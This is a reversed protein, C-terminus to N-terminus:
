ATLHLDVKHLLFDVINLHEIGNHGMDIRDLSLVYKPSADTIKDFAGFERKITSESALLYAVQIFCKRGNKVAVFDIEGKHTKGTFVTYGQILLENHIINELFFTDEYNITNTNLTRLGTDTAYFKNNTDLANKGVINYKKCSHLLYAKRLKDLYNYITRTSVIKKNKSFYFSAISEASFEKGANSMIYLSIDKFMKRDMKSSKKVIDRDVINSYLNGLFRMISAEDRFSFRLPFGGWKIYDAIFEDPNCAFNNLSLFDVAEKFSFPFIEFEITRGTLLTALEGSLMTSDSGTVFVSCNFKTRISALLKEFGSLHQIEDIFIYYKGSDAIRSEIEHHMDKADSIFAYDIDELNISVIHSGSIGNELLEDKITEMLVSKGCRRVGTIVKILDVDYYPRILKLYDERKLYMAKKIRNANKNQLLVCLKQNTFIFCLINEHWARNKRM